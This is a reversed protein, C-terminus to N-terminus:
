ILVANIKIDISVAPFDTDDGEYTHKARKPKALCDRDAPGGGRAM